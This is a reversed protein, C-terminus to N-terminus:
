PWPKPSPQLTREPCSQSGAHRSSIFAHPSTAPDARSPSSPRRQTAQPPSSPRTQSSASASTATPHPADGM